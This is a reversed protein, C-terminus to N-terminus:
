NTIFDLHNLAEEKTALESLSLMDAVAKDKEKKLLRVSLPSRLKGDQLMKM